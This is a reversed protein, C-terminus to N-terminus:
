RLTNPRQGPRGFRQGHRSRRIGTSATTAESARYLRSGAGSVENRPCKQLHSVLSRRATACDLRDHSLIGKPSWPPRRTAAFLPVLGRGLPRPRRQRDGSRIHISRSRRQRLRAASRRAGPYHGPTSGMVAMRSHTWFFLPRSGPGARLSEPRAKANQLRSPSQRCTWPQRVGSVDADTIGVPVM